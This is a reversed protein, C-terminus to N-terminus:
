ISNLIPYCSEVLCSIQKNKESRCNKEEKDDGNGGAMVMGEIMKSGEKGM